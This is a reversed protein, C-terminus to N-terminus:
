ALLGYSIYPHIFSRYINLLISTPVFHRLRSIIGITKSIKLAIYDVHFKWSLNNDIMVGLYKVFSKRELKKMLKNENDFVKLHIDIKTKRQYPHFIVFNSKDINTSLKNTLLWDCVNELETNVISELSKLNKDAFLLNTDDALLFLDFKKSTTQIDNICLLFLLPGLVSGQPVGCVVKEKKSIKGCAQTTQCRGSLHSRFWNNAIGRMAYHDLKHLLIGHDVTDFAKKLDVFISCSFLKGDKNTKLNDVIDLLAHEVCDSERFGYQSSCLVDHKTVFAKM